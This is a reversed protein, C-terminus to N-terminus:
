PHNRLTIENSGSDSITSYGTRQATLSVRVALPDSSPLYAFSLTNTGLDIRGKSGQLSWATDPVGNVARWLITGRGPTGAQNGLYFSVSNGAVLPVVYAGTADATPEIVALQTSTSNAMDVAMGARVDPTMREIAFSLTQKLREAAAADEYVRHSFHFCTGVLAITWAAVMVAILIEAFATGRRGGHKLRRM